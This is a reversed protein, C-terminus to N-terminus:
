DVPSIWTGSWYGYIAIAIIIAIVAAMTLIFRRERENMDKMGTM